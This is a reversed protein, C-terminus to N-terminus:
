LNLYFKLIEKRVDDPLILINKIFFMRICPHIVEKINLQLLIDIPSIYRYELTKSMALLSDCKCCEINYRDFSIKIKVKFKFCNNTMYYKSKNYNYCYVDKFDGYNPCCKIRKSM